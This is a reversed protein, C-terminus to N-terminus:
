GGGGAKLTAWVGAATVLAGVLAGLLGSQLNRRHVARDTNVTQLLRFDIDLGARARRHAAVRQQILPSATAFALAVLGIVGPALWLSLDGRVWLIILPTLATALALLFVGPFIWAWTRRRQGLSEWIELLDAASGVGAGSLGAPQALGDGLGLELWVNNPDAIVGMPARAVLRVTQRQEPLMGALDAAEAKAWDGMNNEGVVFRHYFFSEEAANVKTAMARGFRDLHTLNLRRAPLSGFGPMMGMPMLHHPEPGPEWFRLRM